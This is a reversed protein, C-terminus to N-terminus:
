EGRQLWAELKASIKKGKRVRPDLLDLLKLAARLQKRTQNLKLKLLQERSTKENKTSKMNKKTNKKNM